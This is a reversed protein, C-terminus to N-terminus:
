CIEVCVEDRVVGPGDGGGEDWGISGAIVSREKGRPTRGLAMAEEDPDM